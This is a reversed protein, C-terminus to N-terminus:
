WFCIQCLSPSSFWQFLAKPMTRTVWERVPVSFYALPVPNQPKTMTLSLGIAYDLITQAQGCVGLKFVVCNSTASVRATHLHKKPLIKFYCIRLCYFTISFRWEDFYFIKTSWFVDYLFHASLCSLLSFYGCPTCRALCWHGHHIFTHRCYLWLLSNLHGKHHDDTLNNWWFTSLM